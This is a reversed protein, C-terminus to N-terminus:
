KASQYLEKQRLAPYKLIDSSTWGSKNFCNPSALHQNNKSSLNSLNISQNLSFYPAIIIFLLVNFFQPALGIPVVTPAPNLAWLNHRAKSQWITLISFFALSLFSFDAIYSLEHLFILLFLNPIWKNQSLLQFYLLSKTTVRLYM